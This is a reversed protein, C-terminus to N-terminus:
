VNHQAPRRRASQATRSGQKNWGRSTDDPKDACETFHSVGRVRSSTRCIKESGRVRFATRVRTPQNLTSQRCHSRTDSVDPSRDVDTNTTQSFFSPPVGLSRLDKLLEDDLPEAVTQISYRRRSVVTKLSGAGSIIELHCYSQVRKQM